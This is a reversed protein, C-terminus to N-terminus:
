SIEIVSSPFFSEKRECNWLRNLVLRIEPNEFKKPFAKVSPFMYVLNTATVESFDGQLFYARILPVGIREHFMGRKVGLREVVHLNLQM